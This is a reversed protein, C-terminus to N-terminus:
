PLWGPDGLDGRNTALAPGWRCLWCDGWFRRAGQLSSAAFLEESCGGLHPKWATYFHKCALCTSKQTVKLCIVDGAVSSAQESAIIM